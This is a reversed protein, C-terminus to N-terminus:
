EFPYSDLSQRPRPIRVQELVEAARERAEAKSIQRHLRIAEVIQHGITHVPSLSSMPEQFIMSIDRGRISRAERGRPDLRAIDVIGNRASPAAAGHLLIEGRVIRGPRPVIQLISRATVSKGSGSEGVVCLTKGRKLTFSAQEVAKIIGFGTDFWTSLDKVELLTEAAAEM